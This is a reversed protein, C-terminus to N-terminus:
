ENTVSFAKGARWYIVDDAVGAPSNTGAALQMGLISVNDTGDDLENIFPGSATGGVPIVESQSSAILATLPFVFDSFSTSDIDVTITNTLTNVSLINGILNNMEIMGGTEPIRVRIAQGATFGHTVSMTIEAEAEKSIATITRRAPYFQPDFSIKRWSGTTGAIIESMYDLTFTTDTLTTIGVTFDIGGLQQAGAINILRVVDGASLGNVGSNTVLPPPGASVTVITANLPGPTQLSTDLLSFGGATLALTLSPKQNEIGTDLAMGRQWRFEVGAGGGAGAAVTYNIIEMWDIDSRIDLFVSEGNSTFRGQQVITDSM